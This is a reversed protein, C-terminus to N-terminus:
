VLSFAYVSLRSHLPYHVSHCPAHPIKSHLCNQLTSSCFLKSAKQIWILYGQLGHWLLWEVASIRSRGVFLLALTMMENNGWAIIEEISLTTRRTNAEADDTGVPANSCRRAAQLCGLDM